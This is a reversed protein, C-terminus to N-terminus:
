FMRLLILFTGIIAGDLPLRHDATSLLLPCCHVVIQPAVDRIGNEKFTVADGCKINQIKPLKMQGRITSTFSLPLIIHRHVRM